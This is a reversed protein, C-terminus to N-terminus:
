AGELLEKQVEENSWLSSNEDEETDGRDNQLQKDADGM